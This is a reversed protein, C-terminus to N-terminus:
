SDNWAPPDSEVPAGFKSGAVKESDRLGSSSPPVDYPVCYKRPHIGNPSSPPRRSPVSQVSSSEPSPFMLLSSESDISATRNRAVPSPTKEERPLIPHATVRDRLDPAGGLNAVRLEHALEFEM